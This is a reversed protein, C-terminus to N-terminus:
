SVADGVDTWHVLAERQGVKCAPQVDCSTIDCAVENLHAPFILSRAFLQPKKKTYLFYIYLKVAFM